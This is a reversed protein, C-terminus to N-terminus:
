QVMHATLQMDNIQTSDLASVALVDRKKRHYWNILFLQLAHKQRKESKPVHRDHSIRKCVGEFNPCTSEETKM